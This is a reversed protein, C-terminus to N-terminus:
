IDLRGLLPNQYQLIFFSANENFQMRSSQVNYLTCEYIKNLPFFLRSVRSAIRPQYFWSPKNGTFKSKHAFIIPFSDLLIFCHVFFFFVADTSSTWKGLLLNLHIIKTM